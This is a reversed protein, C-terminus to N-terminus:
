VVGLTFISISVDNELSTALAGAASLLTAGTTCIDDVLMVHRGKLSEPQRVSFVGRTNAIRQESTLSTQTRHSRDAHLQTGIPIGTAQSIGEAIMETQCYGRRLRKIWHLPVPLLLEVGTFLGSHVLAEAGIRGLTTALRSFGRYKFDHIMSALSSDRTYFFPACARVLPIQGAFRREMPNLDSNPGSRNSWYKEYGTFPLKSRCGTCIFEESDLLSTSCVHCERPILVDLLASFPNM